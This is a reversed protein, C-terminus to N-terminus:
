AMVTGKIKRSIDLREAKTGYVEGDARAFIQWYVAATTSLALTDAETFHYTLTNDTTNVIMDTLAKTSRHIGSEFTLEAATISGVDLGTDAFSITLYPTTGQLLNNM